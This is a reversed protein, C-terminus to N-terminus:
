KVSVRKADPYRTQILGLVMNSVEPDVDQVPILTKKGVMAKCKM